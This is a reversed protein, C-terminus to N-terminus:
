RTTALGVRPMCSWSASSAVTSPMAPAAAKNSITGTVTGAAATLAPLLVAALLLPRIRHLMPHLTLRPDFLTPHLPRASAHRARRTM